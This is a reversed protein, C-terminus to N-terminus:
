KTVRFRAPASIARDLDDLYRRYTVDELSRKDAM